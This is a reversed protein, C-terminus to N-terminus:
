YENNGTINPIKREGEKWRVDEQEKEKELLNM